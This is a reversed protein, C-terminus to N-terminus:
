RRFTIVARATSTNQGSVNPDFSAQMGLRVVDGDQLGACADSYPDWWTDGFGSGTYTRTLDVFTHILNGGRYIELCTSARGYSQAPTYSDLHASTFGRVTYERYRWNNDQPGSVELTETAVDPGASWIDHGATGDWDYIHQIPHNATGDWDHITATPYDGRVDYDHIPM